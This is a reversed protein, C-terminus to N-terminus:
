DEQMGGAGTRRGWGHLLDVVGVLVGPLRGPGAVGVLGGVLLHRGRADDIGVLGRGGGMGRGGVAAGDVVRAELDVLLLLRQRGLCLGFGLGGEQCFEVRQELAGLIVVHDPPVGGALVDDDLTWLLKSKM